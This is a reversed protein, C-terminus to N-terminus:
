HKVAPLSILTIVPIYYILSYPEARSLMTPPPEPARAHGLLALRHTHEASVDIDGMVPANQPGLAPGDREQGTAEM